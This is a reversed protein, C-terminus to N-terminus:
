AAFSSSFNGSVAFAVCCWPLRASCISWLPRARDPVASTLAGAISLASSSAQDPPSPSPLAPGRSGSGAVRRRFCPPWTVACRREGCLWNSLLRWHRALGVGEGSGAVGVHLAALVKRWSPAIALFVGIARAFAATVPLAEPSDGEVPGPLRPLAAAPHAVSARFSGACPLLVAAVVLLVALAPDIGAALSCVISRQSKSSTRRAAAEVALVGSCCSRIGNRCFCTTM